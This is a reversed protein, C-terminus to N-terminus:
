LTDIPDINIIVSNTSFYYQIFQVIVFNSELQSTNNDVGFTMYALEFGGPASLLGVATWHKLVSHVKLASCHYLLRLECPM